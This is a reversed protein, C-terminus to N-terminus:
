EIWGGGLLQDIRYCAAIQGPAVGFQPEDFTVHIRCEPLTEITAAAAESGYRIQVDCRLPGTPEDILWNVRDVFLERRGLEEKTGVIVRHARADIRVVYHPEAFSAGLGKRQGITYREIGAHRGVLRGDTTVIDGGRHSEGNRREIFSAYDGDPIFCIEQSDKKDAVSLGIRGAIARIQSKDYSGIPFMVHPLLERDIGCLVYSQDKTHDRGRLLSPAQRDGGAALRAYHGTAILDAGLSEAYEWLKGFKIWNNCAVCPNPTRGRSYEEVFYDVIRRFPEDFNVAYFPLELRTAVRRADAADAATCCGKKHEAMPSVVPLADGTSMAPSACETEVDVGHRMFLGIVEYGAERLLYASVSSDVGGSMALVVRQM